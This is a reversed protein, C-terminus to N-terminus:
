DQTPQAGAAVLADSLTGALDCGQEIEGIGALPVISIM